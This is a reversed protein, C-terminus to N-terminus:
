EDIQFYNRLEKLQKDWDRKPYKSKLMDWEKRQKCQELAILKSWKKVSKDPNRNYERKVPVIAFREQIQKGNYYLAHEAEIDGREGCHICHANWFDERRLQDILWSPTNM